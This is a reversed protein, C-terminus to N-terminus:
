YSGLFGVPRPRIILPKSNLLLSSSAISIVCHHHAIVRIGPALSSSDALLCHLSCCTSARALACLVASCSAAFTREKEACMIMACVSCNRDEHM